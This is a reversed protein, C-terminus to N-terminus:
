SDNVENQEFQNASNNVLLQISSLILRVVILFSGIAVWIYSSWLPFNMLGPMVLKNTFANITSILGQYGIFFFYAVTLIYFSVNLYNQIKNSFKNFIIDLRIHGNVKQVYSMSLFVVIIMLYSETIEYAGTISKNFLYRSLADISTLVMMIVLALQSFRLLLLEIKGFYKNFVSM